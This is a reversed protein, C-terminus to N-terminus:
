AWRVSPRGVATENVLQGCARCVTRAGKLLDGSITTNYPLEMQYITVSDPALAITQRVCDQWNDETEGLMEAILDINIQPFDLARAQEYARFVEPSRHARGNLELIRDNFNEIGLSLRTVGLRRIVALKAATSM